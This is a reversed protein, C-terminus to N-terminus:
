RSNCTFHCTCCSNFPSRYSLAESDKREVEFTMTVTRQSYILSTGGKMEQDVGAMTWASTFVKDFFQEGVERLM